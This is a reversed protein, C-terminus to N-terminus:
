KVMGNMVKMTATGFFGTPATLGQPTLIDQKYAQQFKMLAVKTAPGFYITEHGSSGNGSLAITFGHANLFVQLAKVDSGTSGLALSRTFPASPMTAPVSVSTNTAIMSTVQVSNLLARTLPGIQGVGQLRNDIQYRIVAAKTLPGFYGTPANTLYRLSTLLQQLHLVEDGTSGLSLDL